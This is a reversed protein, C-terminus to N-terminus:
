FKIWKCEPPNAGQRVGRLSKRRFNNQVLCTPINAKAIEELFYGGGLPTPGDYDRLSLDKMLDTIHSGAIADGGENRVIQGKSDWEVVSGSRIHDLLARAKNKYNKPMAKLIVEDPLRDDIDTTSEIIEVSEKQSPKNTPNRDDNDGDGSDNDWRKRKRKLFEYHEVPILIMKRVSTMKINRHFTECNIFTVLSGKNAETHNEEEM